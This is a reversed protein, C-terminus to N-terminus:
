YWLTLSATFSPSREGHMADDESSDATIRIQSMEM